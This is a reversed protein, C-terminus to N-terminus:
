KTLDLISEGILDSPKSLDFNDLVSAGLVGFSSSDDLIGHEKMSPSYMLCPVCERTHDTGKYTPDNGHDATIILLTDSDIVGLLQGLLLDFDELEDAYGSVNRRHGWKADFDVLNTFLLGTFVKKMEEITQLMGEHSSTSHISKTIGQGNFIDRIKGIGIVDFANSKLVDLVTESSPSLAYDHRNSTRTFHGVSDGVYPRAIVRGVKYEPKLTIERAIQCVRYLEDLGTVEEHGCIQLVSDASTYLILKKGDSQIEEMALEDLIETGSASKNGIFVHGTLRELEQVLEDPFGNETFTKFPKTTHIGMMEWHGTMTDKSCSAEHMKFAYGKSQLAKGSPHLNGLGLKYLNEIKLDPRYELIHGFALTIMENFSTQREETSLHENTCLSDSVTLLCAAKKNLVKANHFLAFSEMEVCLADQEEVMKEPQEYDGEYYFVDSSHTNTKVVPISVEQSVSEILKNLDEDPYQMTDTDGSQALAYTSESYSGKVLAVSKMPLKESYSGTSGVRIIADVDYFKFLEYSYIGMSAMGMGSGMVSVRHGKYIGTYGLMGRVDNFLVPNELFNEAILKARLPDGPMLVVKAVDEINANNHATSMIEEELYILACLLAKILIM